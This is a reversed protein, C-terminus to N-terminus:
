IGREDNHALVHLRTSVSWGHTVATDFLWRFKTALEAPSRGEPMLWVRDSAILGSDVLSAVQNVDRDDCIVFKFMSTVAGLARLAEPVIAREVAVGSGALKPSVNFRVAATNPGTALARLLPSPSHTGNTEIEVGALGADLLAIVLTDLHKAQVLPEGGSIIALTHRRQEFPILEVAAVAIDYVDMRTLESRRDYKVGNKGDWDWTYPTDCWACDLNCLGLRIFVAPRGASPGEGQLTELRGSCKPSLCHPDDPPRTSLPM